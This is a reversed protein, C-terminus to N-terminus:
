IVKYHLRQKVLQSTTNLVVIGYRSKRYIKYFINSTLSVKRKRIIHIILHKLIELQKEAQLQRTSVGLYKNKQAYEYACYDSIYDYASFLLEDLKKFTRRCIIGGRDGVIDEHYGKRDSYIYQIKKTLQCRYILVYNFYNRCMMLPIDM